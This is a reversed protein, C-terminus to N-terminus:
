HETLIDIYATVICSVDSLYALFLLDSKEIIAAHLFYPNSLINCPLSIRDKLHIPIDVPGDQLPNFKQM